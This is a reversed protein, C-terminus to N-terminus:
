TYRQPDAADVFIQQIGSSFHYCRNGFYTQPAAVSYSYYYHDYDYQMLFGHESNGDDQAHYPDYGQHLIGDCIRNAFSLAGEPSAKFRLWEFTDMPLPNEYGNMSRYEIDIADEPLPGTMYQETQELTWPYPFISLHTLPLIEFGVIWVCTLIPGIALLVIQVKTLGSGTKSM